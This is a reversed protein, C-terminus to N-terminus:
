HLVWDLNLHKSLTYHIGNMEFVKDSEKSNTGDLHRMLSVLEPETYKVPKITGDDYKKILLNAKDCPKYLKYTSIDVLNNSFVDIDLSKYISELTGLRVDPQISYVVKGNGMHLLQKSNIVNTTKSMIIHAMEDLTLRLVDQHFKSFKSLELKNKSQVFKCKCHKKIFEKQSIEKESHFTKYKYAEYLDNEGLSIELMKADVFDDLLLDTKFLQKPIFWAHGLADSIKIAIDLEDEMHRYMINESRKIFDQYEDESEFSKMEEVYTDIIDRIYVFPELLSVREIFWQEDKILPSDMDTIGLEKAIFERGKLTLKGIEDSKVKKNLLGKFKSM